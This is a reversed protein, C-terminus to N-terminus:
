QSIPAEARLQAYFPFPNAKFKADTVDVPLVLKVPAIVTGGPTNM